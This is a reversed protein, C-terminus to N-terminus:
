SDHRGRIASKVQEAFTSQNFSGEPMLRTQPPTGKKLTALADMRNPTIGVVLWQDEVEVVIIRGQPAVNVTGIIKIIGGERMQLSQLRKLGWAAVAMLGMVLILGLLVQWASALPTNAPFSM